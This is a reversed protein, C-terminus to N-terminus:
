TIDDEYKDGKVSPIKVVVNISDTIARFNTSEGPEVIVIDGKKYRSGNMELEGEVVFTIETAIKHHHWGEQDGASYRKLAVEAVQTSLCTPCFDGVFWGKKLESEKHLKM